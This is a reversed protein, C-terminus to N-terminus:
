SDPHVFVLNGGGRLAGIVDAGLPNGDADQDNIIFSINNKKDPPLTVGATVPTNNSRFSEVRNKTTYVFDLDKSIVSVYVKEPLLHNEVLKFCVCGHPLNPSKPEFTRGLYRGSLAPAAAILELVNRNITEQMVAPEVEATLCLKKGKDVGFSTIPFLRPPEISHAALADRVQSAENVMDGDNTLFVVNEDKIGRGPLVSSVLVLCDQNQLKSSLCVDFTPQLQDQHLSGYEVDIKYDTRIKEIEDQVRQRISPAVKSFDVGPCNYDNRFKCLSSFNIEGSRNKLTSAAIRLYHERKRVGIFEFVVYDSSILEVFPNGSLAAFFRNVSPFTEDILYVLLNTDLFFRLSFYGDLPTDSWAKV